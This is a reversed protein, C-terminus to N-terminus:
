LDPVGTLRRRLLDSWLSVMPRQAEPPLNSWVTLTPM